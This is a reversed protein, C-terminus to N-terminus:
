RSKRRRMCVAGLAAFLAFGGALNSGRATLPSFACSAAAQGQAQCSSGTCSSSGSATVTINLKDKLAQICADVNGNHDIYQGNCFIAGKPDACDAECGGKVTTHCDAYLDGQCM